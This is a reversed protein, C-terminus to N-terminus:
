LTIKVIKFSKRKKRLQISRFFEKELIFHFYQLFFESFLFISFYIPVNM